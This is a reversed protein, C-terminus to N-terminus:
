KRNKKHCKNVHKRFQSAELELGHEEVCVEHLGSMTLDDRELWADFAKQEETPLNHYFRCVGCRHLSEATKLRDAISM